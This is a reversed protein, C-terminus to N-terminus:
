KHNVHGINHLLTRCQNTFHQDTQRINHFVNRSCQVLAYRASPESKLKISTQTAFEPPCSVDLLLLALCAKINLVLYLPNYLYAYLPMRSCTLCQCEFEM